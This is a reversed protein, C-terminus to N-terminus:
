SPSRAMAERRFAARLDTEPVFLDGDTGGATEVRGPPPIDLLGAMEIITEIRAELIAMDSRAQDLRRELERQTGRLEDLQRTREGLLAGAREVVTLYNSTAPASDLDDARAEYEKALLLAAEAAEGSTGSVLRRIKAAHERYSVAEVLSVGQTNRRIAHGGADGLHVITLPNYLITKLCSPLM